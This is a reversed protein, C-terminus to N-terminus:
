LPPSGPGTTAPSSSSSSLPSPPTAINVLNNGILIASLSDDFRDMVKLAIRAGRSGGEAASELRMRNASSFCMESASFFASLCILVIYAAIYGSM